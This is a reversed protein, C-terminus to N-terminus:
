AGMYCIKKSKYLWESITNEACSPCALYGSTSWGSMIFYAPFDNISCMLNARMRFYQKMSADGTSIGLGWLLNLEEILPQLYVDINHKPGTSSEILLSMM